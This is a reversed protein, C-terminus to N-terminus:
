LSLRLFWCRFGRVWRSLQWGLKCDARDNARSAPILVEVFISCRKSFRGVLELDPVLSERNGIRSILPIARRVQRVSTGRLDVCFGLFRAVVSGVRCLEVYTSGRIVANFSDKRSGRCWFTALDFGFRVGSRVLVCRFSGRFWFAGVGCCSLVRDLTGPSVFRQCLSSIANGAWGAAARSPESPPRRSSRGSRSAASAVGPKRRRVKPPARGGRAGGLFGGPLPRRYKDAAGGSGQKLGWGAAEGVCSRESRGDGGRSSSASKM